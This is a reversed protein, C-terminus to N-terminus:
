SAPQAFLANFYMRGVREQIKVRRPKKAFGRGEEEDYKSNGLEATIADLLRQQGADGSTRVYNVLATWPNALNVGKQTARARVASPITNDASTYETRLQGTLANENVLINHYEVLARRGGAMNVDFGDQHQKLHGMEHQITQAVTYGGEAVSNTLIIGYQALYGGGGAQAVVESAPTSGDHWGNVQQVTLEKDAASLGVVCGDPYKGFPVDARVGPPVEVIKVARTIGLTETASAILATDLARQVVAKTAGTSRQVAGDREGGHAGVARQAVVSPATSAGAEFAAGDTEAARESDQGPDTVTVGAGNDNGTERVGRLNKDLHSAEHALIRTNGVASPGLFIDKGVTMAQAGLAATARQATPNDHVRGESLRDNRYFAKAQSLFAGPLPSSPTAKAAELLGRQNEPATDLAAGHGCGPGHEHRAAERQVPAPHGCGPGHRHRGAEVTRAVAANGAAHQLDLMRQVPASPPVVPRTSEREDSTRSRTGHARM